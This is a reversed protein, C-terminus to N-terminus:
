ECKWRDGRHFLVFLEFQAEINPSHHFTQLFKALYFYFPNKVWLRDGSCRDGDTQPDFNWKRKIQDFTDLSKAM